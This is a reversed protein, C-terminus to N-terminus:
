CRTNILTNNVLSPTSCHLHQGTPNFVLHPAGVGMYINVGCSCVAGLLDLALTADESLGCHAAAPLPCHAPRARCPRGARSATPSNGMGAQQQPIIVIPATCWMLVARKEGRDGLASQGNFPIRSLVLLTLDPLPGYPEPM